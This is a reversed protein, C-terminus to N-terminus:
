KRKDYIKAMRIKHAHLLYYIKVCHVSNCLYRFRTAYNTDTYIMFQDQRAYNCPQQLSGINVSSILM